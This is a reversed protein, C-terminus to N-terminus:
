HFLATFFATFPCHFRCHLPYHSTPVLETPNKAAWDLVEGIATSLLTDPVLFDHHM